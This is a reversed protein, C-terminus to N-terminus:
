CTKDKKCKAEAAEAAEAMRDLDAQIKAQKAAENPDNAQDKYLREAEAKEEKTLEPRPQGANNAAQQRTRQAVLQQMRKNQQATTCGQQEAASSADNIGTVRGTIPNVKSNGPGFRMDQSTPQSTSSVGTRDGTVRTDTDPRFGGGGFGNTFPIGNQGVGCERTLLHGANQAELSNLVGRIFSTSVSSGRYKINNNKDYLIAVNPLPNNNKIVIGGYNGTNTEFFLYQYGIRGPINLRTYDQITFDMKKIHTIYEVLKGRNLEDLSVEYLRLLKNYEEASVTMNAPELYVNPLVPTEITKPVEVQVPSQKFIKLIQNGTAWEAWLNGDFLGVASVTSTFLLFLILLTFGRKM